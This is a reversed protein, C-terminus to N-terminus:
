FGLTEIVMWEDAAGTKVVDGEALGDTDLIKSCPLAEDEGIAVTREWGDGETWEWREAAIGDGRRLFGQCYHGALVVLGRVDRGGDLRLVVCRAGGRGTPRPDVDRWVEEYDTERGTDPNLMRGTELTSGDPQTTMDGEDALNDTDKTRSDIWHTWRGRTIAQGKHNVPWSSSTGAIAWDLRDV